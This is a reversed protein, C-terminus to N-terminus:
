KLIRLLRDSFTLMLPTGVTLLLGGATSAAGSESSQGRVVLMYGAASSLTGMILGPLIRGRSRDTAGAWRAAYSGAVGPLALTAFGAVMTTIANCRSAHVGLIGRARIEFCQGAALVSIGIGLANAAVSSALVRGWAYGEEEETWDFGFTLEEGAARPGGPRVGRRTEILLVGGGAATGYIAGAQGPSMVELREIDSIPLTAYLTSPASVPVGDLFVSVERCGGTGTTGRYEVCSHPGFSGARVRVGLMEAQLLQGLTLGQRSAQDIAPRLVENMSHGSSVRRQELETQAEVVLSDLQVPTQSLRIELISTGQERVVIRQSANGYALHELLLVRDGAPVGGILFRGAADSLASLETGEVRVLVGALAGRSDEDVIRGSVSGVAQARAPAAAVAVALCVCAVGSLRRTTPGASRSRM